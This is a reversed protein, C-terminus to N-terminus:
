SFDHALYVCLSVIGVLEDRQSWGDGDRQGNLQDLRRRYADLDPDPSDVSNDDENDLEDAKRKPSIRMRSSGEGNDQEQVVEMKSELVMERDSSADPTEKELGLGIHRITRDGDEEEPSEVSVEM